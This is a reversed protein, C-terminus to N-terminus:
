KKVKILVFVTVGQSTRSFPPLVSVFRMHSKEIEPPGCNQTFAHTHSSPLFKCDHDNTPSLFNNCYAYNIQWMLQNSVNKALSAALTFLKTFRFIPVKRQLMSQPLSRPMKLVEFQRHFFYYFFCGLGFRISNWNENCHQGLICLSPDNCTLAKYCMDFSYNFKQEKEKTKNRQLSGRCIEVIQRQECLRTAATIFRM